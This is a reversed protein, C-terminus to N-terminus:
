SAGGIDRGEGAEAAIAAWYRRLARREQAELSKRARTLALLRDKAKDVDHRTDPGAAHGYPFPVVTKCNAASM